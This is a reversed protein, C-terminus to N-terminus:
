KVKLDGVGFLFIDDSDVPSFGYEGLTLADKASIAYCNGNAAQITVPLEVKSLVSRATGWGEIKVLAVTRSDKTPKLRYLKYRTPDVGCVRFVHQQGLKLRIASHAGKVKASRTFPGGQYRTAVQKELATTETGDVYSVVLNEGPTADQVQASMFQPLVCSLWALTVTRVFGRLNRRM